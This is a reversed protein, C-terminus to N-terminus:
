LGVMTEFLNMLSNTKLDVQDKFDSLNITTNSIKVSVLLIITGFIIVTLLLVFLISFARPIGSKEIKWVAPYLLYSLFMSFVLPLLFNKALIAGLLLVSVIFLSLGTRELLSRTM